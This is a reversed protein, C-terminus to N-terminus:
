ERLWWVVLLVLGIVMGFTCLTDKATWNHAKGKSTTLTKTKSHMWPRHAPSAIVLRSRYAFQGCRSSYSKHHCPKAACVTHGHSHSHSIPM